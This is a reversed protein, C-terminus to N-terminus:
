ARAVRHRLRGLTGGAHGGVLVFVGLVFQIVPTLYQLLGLMSLPIRQAAAGFLVLPTATVIGASALLLSLSWGQHIFASSGNGIIVVLM